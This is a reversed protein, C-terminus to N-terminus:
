LACTRLTTQILIVEGGAQLGSKWDTVKRTQRVTDDGYLRPANHLGQSLSTPVDVAAVRLPITALKKLGKRTQSSSPVSAPASSRATTLTAANSEQTENATVPRKVPTKALGSVYIPPPKVGAKESRTNRMGFYVDGAGTALGSLLDYTVKVTGSLPEVSGQHTNYTSPGYRYGSDTM